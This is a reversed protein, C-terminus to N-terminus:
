CDCVETKVSGGELDALVVWKRGFRGSQGEVRVRWPSVEGVGKGIAIPRVVFLIKSENASWNL